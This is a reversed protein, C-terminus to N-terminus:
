CKICNIMKCSPKWSPHEMKPIFTHNKSLGVYDSIETYDSTDCM